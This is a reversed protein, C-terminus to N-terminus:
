CVQTLEWCCNINSVGTNELCLAGLSHMIGRTGEEVFLNTKKFSFFSNTSGMSRQPGVRTCLCESTGVVVVQLRVVSGRARTIGVRWGVAGVGAWGTHIFNKYM